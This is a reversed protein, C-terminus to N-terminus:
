VARSLCSTVALWAVSTTDVREEEITRWFKTEALVHPADRDPIGGGKSVIYDIKPRPHKLRCM